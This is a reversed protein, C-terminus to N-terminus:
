SSGQRRFGWLKKLAMSCWFRISRIWDEEHPSGNAWSTVSCDSCDLVLICHEVYITYCVNVPVYVNWQPAGFQLQKVEAMVSQQHAMKAVKLSEVHSGMAESPGMQLGFNLGINVSAVQTCAGLCGMNLGEASYYGQLGWRSGPGQDGQVEYHFERVRVAQHHVEGDYVLHGFDHVEDGTVVQGRNFYCSLEQHHM